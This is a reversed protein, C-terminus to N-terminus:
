FTVVIKLKFHCYCCTFVIPIKGASLKCNCNNYTHSNDLSRDCYQYDIKEEQNNITTIFADFYVCTGIRGFM